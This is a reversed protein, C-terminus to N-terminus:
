IWGQSVVLRLPLSVLQFLSWVMLLVNRTESNKNKNIIKAVVKVEM